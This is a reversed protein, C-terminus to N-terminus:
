SAPPSRWPFLLEAAVLAVHVAPDDEVLRDAHRRGMGDADDLAQGFGLAGAMGAREIREGGPRQRDREAFRGLGNGEDHIPALEVAEGHAPALLAVGVVGFAAHDFGAVPPRRGVGDVGQQWGKGAHDFLHRRAIGGDLDFALPGIVEGALAFRHFELGARDLDVAQFEGIGGVGVMGNELGCAALPGIHAREGAIHAAFEPTKAMDARQAPDRDPGETFFGHNRQFFQLGQAMSGRGTLHAEGVGDQGDLGRQVVDRRQGDAPCVRCPQLAALGDNQTSPIGGNETPRDIDRNCALQQGQGFDSWPSITGLRTNM